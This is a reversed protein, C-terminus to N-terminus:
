YETPDLQRDWEIVLSTSDLPDVKVPLRTGIQIRGMYELPIFEKHLVPFLPEDDQYITLTLKLLPNDNLTTGTREVKTIEAIAPVGTALIRDSRAAKATVSRASLLLVVGVSGLIGTVLWQQAFGFAGALGLELVAVWTLTGGVGKLAPRATPPKRDFSPPRGSRGWARLLIAAVFGFTCIFVMAFLPIPFTWGRLRDFEELCGSGSCEWNGGSFAYKLSVVMGIFLIPILGSGLYEAVYSSTKRIPPLLPRLPPQDV